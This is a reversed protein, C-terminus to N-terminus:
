YIVTKGVIYAEKSFDLTLTNTVTIDKKDLLYMLGSDTAIFVLDCIVENFHKIKKVGTTSSTITRLHVVNNGSRAKAYSTKVQVKKLSNDIDVILDYDQNDNLPISVCFGKNTFYSIAIGLGVNGKAIPSLM